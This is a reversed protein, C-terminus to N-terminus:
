VQDSLTDVFGDVGGGGSWPLRLKMVDIGVRTEAREKKAFAM